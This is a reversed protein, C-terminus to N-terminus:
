FVFDDATLNAATVHELILKDGGGFSIWTDGGHQSIHSSLSEFDSVGSFKLIDVYDSGHTFDTVTDVGNGSHFVFNDQDAGGTLIDKGAGGNLVDLGANGVIVNDGANGTLHNAADNGTAKLDGNGLLTLNEINDGLTYSVTSKVTDTGANAAEKITLSADSLIYTTDGGSGFITGKITGDRTDLSAEGLGLDIKGDLMGHNVITLSGQGIADIAFAGSIKGSNVVTTDTDTPLYVGYNKGHIDGDAKNELSGSMSIGAAGGTMSGTNIVAAALAVMGGTEANITGHNVISGGMGDFAVGYDGILKSTSEITVSGGTGEVFIDAIAHGITTIDGKVDIITNKSNVDVLVASANTVTLKAQEAITWTDNSTEIELQIHRDSSIVHSAM